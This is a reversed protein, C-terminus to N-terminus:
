DLLDILKNIIKKRQKNSLVNFWMLIEKPLKSSVKFKHEGTLVVGSIHTHKKMEKTVIRDKVRQDNWYGDEMKEGINKDVKKNNIVDNKYENYIMM